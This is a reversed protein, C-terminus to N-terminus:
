RVLPDLEKELEDVTLYGRHVKGNIFFTPTSNVGFKESARQRVATIGDLLDQNALCTEISPQTFGIQKAFNQVWGYPEPAAMLGSQQQFFAEIVPFYKGEGACRALMFGAMAYNDLPFERFIFRVKGADVYKQKLTPFTKNHFDACHPCTLSAYEVITVPADAKGISQEDLPGPALLDANLSADGGAPKSAAKDANSAATDVVDTRASDEVIKDYRTKLAYVGAAILLLAVALAVLSRKM